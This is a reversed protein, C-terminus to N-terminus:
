NRIQHAATSLTLHVITVTCVTNYKSSLQETTRDIMRDLTKDNWWETMRDIM